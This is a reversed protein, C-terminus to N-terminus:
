SANDKAAKELVLDKIVKDQRSADKRIVYGM